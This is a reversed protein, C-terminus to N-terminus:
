KIGVLSYSCGLNMEPCQLFYSHVSLMCLSVISRIFHIQVIVPYLIYPHWAMWSVQWGAIFTLLKPNNVNCYIEALHTAICWGTILQYQTTRWILRLSVFNSYRSRYIKFITHFLNEHFSIEGWLVMVLLHTFFYTLIVLLNWLWM